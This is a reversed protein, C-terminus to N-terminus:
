DATVQRIVERVLEHKGEFRVIHPSLGTQKLQAVYKDV